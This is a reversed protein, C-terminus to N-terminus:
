EEGENIRFLIFWHSTESQEAKDLESMYGEDLICIDGMCNLIMTLYEERTRYIASYNSKLNESWIQDLTLRQDVGVSEEFYIITGPNAIQWIQKYCEALTDDNIYMAVGTMIINDFISRDLSSLADAVSLQFFRCNDDEYKKRAEKIMGSSVDVGFYCFCKDHLVDAWRGIGCGLDLVISTDGIDLQPLILNKEYEDWRRAYDADQDGLLVTTYKKEDAGAARSDYFKAVADQSIDLKDGYIRM